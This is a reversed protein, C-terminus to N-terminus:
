RLALLAAFLLAVGVLGVIATRRDAPPVRRAEPHAVVIAAGLFPLAPVGREAVVVVVATLALACALAVITRRRSLAHRRAAALYLAAFTVDGIGLIPEIRDTGLMPWPLALVSIAAEIQVIQATPGSPHLVSLVDVLASIVAVIVLHGAHEIAGGIVGGLLTGAFLLSSTVLAAAVLEPLAGGLAVVLASAGVPVLLWALARAPLRPVLAAACLVEASVCAFALAYAALPALPARPAIVALAALAVPAAVISALWRGRPDAM